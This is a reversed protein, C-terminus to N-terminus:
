ATVRAERRRRGFTLQLKGSLQEILVGIEIQLRVDGFITAFDGPDLFDKGPAAAIEIHVIAEAEHAFASDISVADIQVIDVHTSPM